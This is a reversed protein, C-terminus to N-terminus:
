YAWADDLPPTPLPDRIGSAPCRRCTQWPRWATTITALDSAEAAVPHPTTKNHITHLWAAEHWQVATTESGTTRGNHQVLQALREVNGVRANLPIVGRPKLGTARFM